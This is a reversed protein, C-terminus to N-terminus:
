WGRPVAAALKKPDNEDPEAAPAAGPRLRERPRRRTDDDKAAAGRESLRKARAEIQEETGTGLLDLDEEDLGYKIAARLALVESEKEAAKKEAADKAEATKQADTKDRDEFAKAKAEADEARKLAAKESDRQKRITEMARDKDFPEDDKEAAAKAEEAKKAAEAAAAEAAAKEDKEKEDDAM